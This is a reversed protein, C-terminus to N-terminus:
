RGIPSPDSEITTANSRRYAPWQLPVIMNKEDDLADRLPTTGHLFQVDKAM